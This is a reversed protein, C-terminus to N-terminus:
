AKEIKALKRDLRILFVTIGVFLISMVAVVVYLKGSNDADPLESSHIVQLLILNLINAM